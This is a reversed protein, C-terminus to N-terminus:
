QGYGSPIHPTVDHLNGPADPVDPPTGGGGYIINYAATNSNPGFLLNYTGQSYQNGWATVAADFQGQTMGDPVPVEYNSNGDGPNSFANRDDVYTQNTPDRTPETAFGPLSFQADIVKHRKNTCPDTEWHWVFDGCHKPSIGGFKAVLSLPRCTMTVALGLPDGFSLPNGEGYANTSMGGALGIPDSQVYRGAAAEFDRNLNYSLGSEADFYQGPFRLNLTYGTSSVPAKEGFPNGAYAWQWLVAGTSNTVVRASGLGDAHVFNVATTSGTHDVIGVPMGDMWIYDRTTTGASESLLHSNEDYDFRTTIGGATKQVRQGLANLVYSGVTVGGNQIVALRNRGNYGYGYTGSALVDATTNGRADVVRTTTGVGTLHHTGTAYNYNGTLLGPAAKSLRDGTKNYTYAEIATGDAANVGTLRYLPDYTYTETPAPVGAANGIAVINGLVDRKVHLSFATSAVDTWAGNADYTLTVAQGDGLTYSAVPGFPMHVVNSVVTTAAGGSPTAQISAIQGLANRTYAVVTGNPTTVSALRDGTTWTYTTTRTTTGATQQKKIVNGRNDYCWTIGGNGEIVRTLHGKGFSGTCGTVSDAEDYKYTVNLSTDAFTETLLRNDADYTRARSNNTADVSTLANGAVDFTHTSTGTDPSHLGTLNGLADVDYTTTLGDPDSFGDMRDLADFTNVTQTDATATDTGQYNQLTSVLRNLGDFAQKTQHGLVDQSHVLNGNADYSDSFSASFVSRNLGDAMATLQGLANFTRGSSRVVTGTPTLVQSSTRNGAADLTYHIHNGLADTIDTLRHAADYTYTVVVGDPDTVSNVTGTPDYAITTVADSSSTTGSTNARITKSALWGRPTYSFDTLVGNQGRVRTVRGAKDYSMYTTVLGAGDTASALDGLRHCAGGLTGCGTEDTTPYWAYSATDTVDTRPGDVTLPLGVLPCTGGDVVTCYTTTTRRVGNPATGTAACTYSPAMVSDILCQATVQGAANYAWGQKSKFTGTADKVTQVLPVRLASDWTTETTRQIPTGQAEVKSLLLGLTDYTTATLNGNGDVQTAIRGNADYTYTTTQTTCGDCTRSISTPKPVGFMYTLSATEKAGLADTAEYMDFDQQGPVGAFQVAATGVAGVNSRVTLVGSIYTTTDVRNSKEDVQGTMDNLSAFNTRNDNEGYIYHRTSADAFTVDTLNDYADYSFRDSAGDSEDMEVIRDGDNWKFTLSRGQPDTVSQLHGSADYALVHAQGDRRVITILRGSSDYTERTGDTRTYTWSVVNGITDRVSQLTDAVDPDSVWDSGSRDFAYTNGDPRLVYASTVSASSSVAIRMGYNHVRLKGFSEQNPALVFANGSSNYTIVLSLPFSGAGGALELVAFKNGTAPNVPDAMAPVPGAPVGQNKGPDPSMPPCEGKWADANYPGWDSGPCMAWRRALPPYGTETSSGDACSRLNVTAGYLDGDEYGDLHYIYVSALLEEKGDPSTCPRNHAAWDVAFADYPTQYRIQDWGGSYWNGVNYFIIPAHGAGATGWLAFLFIGLCMRRLISKWRASKDMTNGQPAM